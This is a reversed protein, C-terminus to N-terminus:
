SLTYSVISQNKKFFYTVRGSTFACIHMVVFNWMSSFFHPVKDNDRNSSSYYTIMQKFFECFDLKFLSEVAKESISM